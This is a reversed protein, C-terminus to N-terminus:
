SEFPPAPLRLDSRPLGTRGRMQPFAPVREATAEVQEEGLIAACETWLIQRLRSARQATEADIVFEWLSKPGDLGDAVQSGIRDLSVALQELFEAIELASHIPIRVVEQDEM